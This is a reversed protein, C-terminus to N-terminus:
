NKADVGDPGQFLLRILENKEHLYLEGLVEPDDAPSPLEKGNDGLIGSWSIVHDAILDHNKITGFRETFVFVVHAMM